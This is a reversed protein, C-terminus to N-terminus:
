GGGDPRSEKDGAPAPDRAAPTQARAIAELVAGPTLLEPLAIGDPAGPGYVMNFPIGYRGHDALYGRIAEDPRTWDGQVTTVGPGTLAALADGHNLVLRKNAQCTLCWDATIDVFVVRDVALAKVAAESEFRQWAIPGQEIRSEARAPALLPSLVLAGLAAVVLPVVPRRHAALRLLLLVIGALAIALWGIRDGAVGALVHILWAATALLAFGLATRLHLMWVGPRPLRAVLGPLAAIVLYPLALGLAIATFILLIRDPGAALAFGVATGLFPASCPTALVMALAGSLFHGWLNPEEGAPKGLRDALASPLLVEFWGFMNGAFLVTVAALLSLFLPQQFQIGWGVAGGAAKLGILVLALLWFAAMVGAAAALFGRRIAGRAAGGHSVVSLLKISLVPLVCPMLNLVLGGILAFLLMGLLSAGPQAAGASAPAAQQLPQPRMRAEVAHTGDTVTVTLTDDTWATIPMRDTGAFPLTIRATLRDGSFAVEPSGLPLYPDSEIFVDPAKIPTASRLDLVMAPPEKRWMLALPWLGDQRPAGPIAARAAALAADSVPDPGANADISLDLDVPVCIDSCALASMRSQLLPPLAGALTLEFPIVVADKYGFSQLENLVFRHPAPWFVRSDRIARQGSWDLTPPFGADGATRWYVKWGPKMRLELGMALTDGSQAGSLLRATLQPSDAVPGAAARAAAPLFVVLASLVACFLMQCFRTM